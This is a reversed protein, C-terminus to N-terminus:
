AYHRALESHYAAGLTRANEVVWTSLRTPCTPADPSTLLGDMLGRLEDATLVVDRVAWGAIRVAGLAARSPVPVVRTRLHLADRILAVLEAFTLTEPGVADLTVRADGTAQEVALAAVDDVFAPQLRYRGGDPLGFVPLRRLLWGINNLLIDEAGFLVTPRLIAHPLGTEELAREVLAKGRFYPLRSVPDPQTISVHVVRRIGSRRAAEFLQRSNHVARDHSVSEYPFRVWYTNYLVEAGAMARAMAAPDDFTYPITRVHAPLDALREPHGTLSAVARGRRILRNAIYRGLYGGAGTVIDTGM